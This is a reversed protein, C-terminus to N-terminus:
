NNELIAELREMSERAGREMGQAVMQELEQLTAYQTIERLQTRARPLATLTTTVTLSHTPAGAFLFTTVLRNPAEIDLYEGYFNFAQGQEDTAFYRWQGGVQFDMIDVIVTYGRPGWWRPILAPDSLVEWVRERSANFVYTSQVQLNKKDIAFMGPM